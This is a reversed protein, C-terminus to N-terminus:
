LNFLEKINIFGKNYFSISNDLIYKLIKSFSEFNEESLINEYLSQKEKFEAFLLMENFLFYENENTIKLDTHIFSFFLFDYKLEIHKIGFYFLYYSLFMQKDKFINDGYKHLIFCLCSYIASYAANKFNTSELNIKLTKLLGFLFIIDSYINDTEFTYGKIFEYIQKTNDFLYSDLTKNNYIFFLDKQDICYYFHYYILFLFIIRSHTNNEKKLFTNKSSQLFVNTIIRIKHHYDHEFFAHFFLSTVFSNKFEKSFLQQVQKEKLIEGLVTDKINKNNYTDFKIQLVSLFFIDPSYNQSVFDFNNIYPISEEFIKTSRNINSTSLNNLTVDLQGLTPIQVISMNIDNKNDNFINPKIPTSTQNKLDEFVKYTSSLDNTDFQGLIEFFFEFDNLKYNEFILSSINYSTKKFFNLFNENIKKKKIKKFNGNEDKVINDIMFYFDNFFDLEKLLVTTLFNSNIEFFTDFENNINLRKIKEEYYKSNNSKRKEIIFGINEENIIDNNKNVFEIKNKEFIYPLAEEIYNTFFSSKIFYNTESFLNTSIGLNKDYEFNRFLIKLGSANNKIVLIMNGVFDNKNNNYLTLLLFYINKFSYGMVIKLNNEILNFIKKEIDILANQTLLTIKEEEFIVTDNLIECLNNEISTKNFIPNMRKFKNNISNNTYIKLSKLDFFLGYCLIKEDIFYVIGDDNIIVNEFIFYKKKNFNTISFHNNKLQWDIGNEFITNTFSKNTTQEFNLAIAKSNNSLNNKFQHIINNDMIYINEINDYNNVHGFVLNGTKKKFVLQNSSQMFFSFINNDITKEIAVQEKENKSILKIKKQDKNYEFYFIKNNINKIIIKDNHILFYYNKFFILDFDSNSYYFNYLNNENEFTNVFIECFNFDVTVTIFSDVDNFIKILIYSEFIEYQESLQSNIKRFFTNNFYTFSQHSSKFSVIMKDNIKEIKIDKENKLLSNLNYFFMYFQNLHSLLYSPLYEKVNSLLKDFLISKKIKETINKIEKISYSSFNEEAKKVVLDIANKKNKKFINELNELIKKTKEKELENVINDFVNKRAKELINALFKLAKENKAAKEKKINDKLRIIADNQINKENNIKKKLIEDLMQKKKIDNVNKMFSLLVKKNQSTELLNFAKILINKQEEKLKEKITNEKWKFIKKQQVKNVKENILNFILSLKKRNKDININDNWKKIINKKFSSDVKKSLSSISLIQSPYFKLLIISKLNGFKNINNLIKKKLVDNVNDLYEVRKLPSLEQLFKNLFYIEFDDINNITGGINIYTNICKYFSFFLYVMLFFNFLNKNNKFKNKNLDIENLKKEYLILAEEFFTNDKKNNESTFLKIENLYSLDDVLDNPYQKDYKIDNIEILYKINMIYILQDSKNLNSYVNTFNSITKKIEEQFKLDYTIDFQKSNLFLNGVEQIFPNVYNFNDFSKKLKDINTKINKKDNKFKLFHEKAKGDNLVNFFKKLLDFSSSSSSTLPNKNISTNPPNPIIILNNDPNPNIQTANSGPNVPNVPNVPNISILNNSGGGVPIAKIKKDLSEYLDSIQDLLKMKEDWEQQIFEFKSNNTTKRKIELFQGRKDTFYKKIQGMIPKLISEDKIKEVIKDLFEYNLDFLILLENNRPNDNKSTLAEIKENSNNAILNITENHRPIEDYKVLKDINLDKPINLFLEKYKSFLFQNIINFNITQRIMSYLHILIDNLNFFEKNFEIVNKIDTLIKREPPGEILGIINYSVKMFYDLNDNSLITNFLKSVNDPTKVGAITIIKIIDFIESLKTSKKSFNALKNILLVYNEDYEKLKQADKDKEPYLEMLRFTLELLDLKTEVIKKTNNDNKIVIEDVDMKYDEVMEQLPINDFIVFTKNLSNIYDKMNKQYEIDKIQMIVDEISSKYKIIKENKAAKMIFYFSSLLNIKTKQISRLRMDYNNIEFNLKENFYREKFTYNEIIKENKLISQLYSCDYYNVNFTNIIKGMEKIQDNILDLKPQDNANKILFFLRQPTFFKNSKLSFSNLINMKTFDDINEMAFFLYFDNSLVSNNELLLEMFIKQNDLNDFDILLFCKKKELLIKLIKFFKKTFINKETSSISSNFPLLCYYFFPFVYGYYNSADINNIVYFISEKNFNFFDILFVDADYHQIIFYNENEIDSTQLYKKYAFMSNTNYNNLSFMFNTQSNTTEVNLYLLLNLLFLTTNKTKIFNLGVTYSIKIFYEIVDEFKNIEDINVIDFGETRKLISLYASLLITYIETNSIFNDKLFQNIIKNKFITFNGVSDVLSIKKQSMDFFNNLKNVNENSIKLQTFENEFEKFLKSNNYILEIVSEDKLDTVKLIENEKDKKVENEDKKKVIIEDNINKKKIKKNKKEKEFGIINKVIIGTNIDRYYTEIPNKISNFFNNPNIKNKKFNTIGWFMLNSEPKHDVDSIQSGMLFISYFISFVSSASIEKFTTSNVLYNNIQPIFSDINYRQIYSMTIEENAVIEKKEESINKSNFIIDILGIIFYVIRDELDVANYAGSKFVSLPNKSSFLSISMNYISNMFGSSAYLPLKSLLANYNSTNMLSTSIIDCILFFSKYYPIAYESGFYINLYSNFNKNTPDNLKTKKIMYKLSNFKSEMKIPKLDYFYLELNSFAYMFKSVKNYNFSILKDNNKEPKKCFVLYGFLNNLLIIMTRKFSKISFVMKNTDLSNFFDNFEGEPLKLTQFILSQQQQSFFINEQYFLQFLDLLKIKSNRVFSMFFHSYFNSGILLMFNDFDTKNDNLFSEISIESNVPFKNNVPKSSLKWFNFPIYNYLFNGNINQDNDIFLDTILDNGTPIKADDFFTFFLFNKGKKNVDKDITIANKLFFCLVVVYSIISVLYRHHTGFLNKLKINKTDSLPFNLFNFVKYYLLLNIQDDEKKDHAFLLDQLSSIDYVKMFDFALSIIENISFIDFLENLNEKKKLFVEIYYIMNAKLPLFDYKEFFRPVNKKIIKFGVLKESILIESLNIESEELIISNKYTIIESDITDEIIYDDFIKEVSRNNIFDPPFESYVDM